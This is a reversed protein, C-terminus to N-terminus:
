MGDCPLHILETRDPGPMAVARTLGGGEVSVMGTAMNVIACRDEVQGM